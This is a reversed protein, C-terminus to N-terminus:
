ARIHVPDQGQAKGVGMDVTQVHELAYHLVQGGRRRGFKPLVEQAFLRMSKLVLELPIYGGVNPEIIVGSLGLTDRLQGLREAVMGPTGYALRDRLLDDYTVRSLRQARAAREEAATTGARGASDAFTEALRRYSRMTSLEPESRAQALTDAVYVPIRLLVEGCGPHGAQHWAQRYVDLQTVVDAVDFGRLGVLLHYGMQGILPFTERTTAAIRIPPHPKQYPKPIVCVNQFRYHQGQYSFQEEQWARLIIDLSEQFRERSEAYPIGYGEYAKPFGSRGIGFDLRGKSIQDVTAAEEAM